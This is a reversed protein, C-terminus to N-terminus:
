AVDGNGVAVSCGFIRGIINSLLCTRMPAVPAAALTLSNVVDRPPASAAGTRTIRRADRTAGVAGGPPAAGNGDAHDVGVLGTM